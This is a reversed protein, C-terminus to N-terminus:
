EIKKSAGSRFIHTRIQLPSLSKIQHVSRERKVKNVAGDKGTGRPFPLPPTERHTHLLIGLFRLLQRRRRRLQTVWEAVAAVIVAVAAVIAAVVAAVAAVVAAVSAVVATVAAAVAAVAAIAAIAAVAAVVAAVAAVAATVVAAASAVPVLRRTTTPLM